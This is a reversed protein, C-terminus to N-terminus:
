FRIKGTDITGKFKEFFIFVNIGYRKGAFFIIEFMFLPMAVEKDARIAMLDDFEVITDGFFEFLLHLFFVVILYGVV